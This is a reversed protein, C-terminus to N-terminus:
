RGPPGQQSAYPAPTAPPAVGGSACGTYTPWCPASRKEVASSRSHRNGHPQSAPCRPGHGGCPTRMFCSAAAGPSPVQCSARLADRTQSLPLRGPTSGGHPPRPGQPGAGGPPPGGQWGEGADTRVPRQTAPRRAETPAPADPRYRRYALTSPHLPVPPKMALPRLALGEPMAQVSPLGYVARLAENLGASCSVAELTRGRAGTIGQGSM